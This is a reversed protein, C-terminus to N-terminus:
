CNTELLFLPFLSKQLSASSHLLSKVKKGLRSQDSTQSRQANGVIIPYSMIQDMGVNTLEGGELGLSIGVSREGLDYRLGTFLSLSQAIDLNTGVGQTYVNSNNAPINFEDFDDSSDEDEGAETGTIMSNQNTSQIEESNIPVERKNHQNRLIGLKRKLIANEMKLNLFTDVSHAAKTPIKRANAFFSNKHFHGRTELTTYKGDKRLFRYTTQFTQHTNKTARFERVFMDIDDIHIFETFVHDVLEAPKYGLFESSAASCYVIRLEYNLVHIVERVSELISQSWNKRRTFEGASNGTSNNLRMKLVQQNNTFCEM